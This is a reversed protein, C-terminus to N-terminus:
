ERRSHTKAFNSVDKVRAGFTHPPKEEGRQGILTAWCHRFISNRYTYHKKQRRDRSETVCSFRLYTGVALSQYYRGKYRYTCCEAPIPSHKNCKEALCHIQSALFLGNNDRKRLPFRFFTVCFTAITHSPAPQKARPPKKSSSKRSVLTTHWHRAINKYEVCALRLFVIDLASLKASYKFCSSNPQLCKGRSIPWPLYIYAKKKKRLIAKNILYICIHKILRLLSKSEVLFFVQVYDLHLDLLNWLKRCSKWM